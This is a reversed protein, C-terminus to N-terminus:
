EQIKQDNNTKQFVKYEFNKHQMNLSCHQSFHFGQQMGISSQFYILYYSSKKYYFIFNIIIYYKCKDFLTYLISLILILFTIIFFIIIPITNNNIIETSLPLKDRLLSPMKKQLYRWGPQIQDVEAFAAIHIGIQTYCHGSTSSNQCRNKNKNKDNPAQLQDEADVAATM